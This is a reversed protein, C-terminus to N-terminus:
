FILEKALISDLLMDRRSQRQQIASLAEYHMHHRRATHPLFGISLPQLTLKAVEESGEDKIYRVLLGDKLSGGIDPRAHLSVGEEAQDVICAHDM